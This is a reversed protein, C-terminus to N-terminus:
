FKIPIDKPNQVVQEQLGLPEERTRIISPCSLISARHFVGASLNGLFNLPDLASLASIGLSEPGQHLLMLLTDEGHHVMEHPPTIFHFVEGLLNEDFGKPRDPTIIEL